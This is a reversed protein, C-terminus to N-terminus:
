FYYPFPLFFPFVFINLPFRRRRFRRFRRRGYGGYYGGYIREDEYVDEPVLLTVSHDDVAELIGELQHGDSLRGIVHFNMYKQCISLIDEEAQGPAGQPQGMPGGPQAGTQHGNTRHDYGYPPFGYYYGMRM